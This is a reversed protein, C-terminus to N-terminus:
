VTRYSYRCWNREISSTSIKVGGLIPLVADHCSPISMLPSSAIHKNSRGHIYVPIDIIKGPSVPYVVYVNNLAIVESTVDLIEQEDWHGSGRM